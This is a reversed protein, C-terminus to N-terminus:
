IVIRTIVEYHAFLNYINFLILSNAFSHSTRFQIKLSLVTQGNSQTCIFLRRGISHNTIYLFVQFWTTHYWVPNLFNLSRVFCVEKYFYREWKIRSLSVRSTTLKLSLRLSMYKSLLSGRAGYRRGPDRPASAQVGKYVTDDAVVLRRLDAAYGQSSESERGRDLDSRTIKM